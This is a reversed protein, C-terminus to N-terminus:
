INEATPTRLLPECIQVWGKRATGGPAFDSSGSCWILAERFKEVEAELEVVRKAFRHAADEPSEEQNTDQIENTIDM